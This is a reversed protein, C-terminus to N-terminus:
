KFLSKIVEKNKDNIPIEVLKYFEKKPEISFTFPKIKKIEIVKNRKDLWVAVFPFFVFLSTIRLKKPKDFEFILPKTNKKRFMLGTSFISVPKADLKLVNGKNKIKIRKNKM